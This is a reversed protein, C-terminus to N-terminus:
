EFLPTRRDKIQLFLGVTIGMVIWYTLAVGSNYVDDFMMRIWFGSMVCLAAAFIFSEFPECALKLGKFFVKYQMVLLFLLTFLGQLGTQLTINFFTNHAHTFNGPRPNSSETDVKKLNARGYGYGVFPHHKFSQWFHHYLLIRVQVSNSSDLKDYSGPIIPQWNENMFKSKIPTIMVFIFLILLVAAIIYGRGRPIYKFFLLPVMSVFFMAVIGARQYSLYLMYSNLILLFVSLMLKKKGLPFYLAAYYFSSFILFYSSVETLGKSFLMKTALSLMFDTQRFDNMFFQYFFLLLAVLNGLCFILLVRRLRERERCFGTLAYFLFVYTLFEGRIENLTYSLRYCSFLSLFIVLTLLLLPINLPNERIKWDKEVYKLGLSGILILVVGISQFTNSHNIPIAYVLCSLGLYVLLEISFHLWAKGGTYSFVTKVV